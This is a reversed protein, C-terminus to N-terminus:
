HSYMDVKLSQTQFILYRTQMMTDKLFTLFDLITCDMTMLKSYRLM